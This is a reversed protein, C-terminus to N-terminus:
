APTRHSRTQSIIDKTITVKTLNDESEDRQRPAKTQRHGGCGGGEIKSETEYLRTVRTHKIPQSNVEEQRSISVAEIACERFRYCKTDRAPSARRPAQPALRPNEV